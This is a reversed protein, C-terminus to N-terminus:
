DQCLGVLGSEGKFQEWYDENLGSVAGSAGFGRNVRLSNGTTRM